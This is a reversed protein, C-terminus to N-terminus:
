IREYTQEFIDPKCLYFEGKVDKIIYDGVSANMRGELTFIPISGSQFVPISPTNTFVRGMFMSIEELNDGKWQIAEIEVPKKRYKM